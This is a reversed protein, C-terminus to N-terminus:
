ERQVLIIESRFVNGISLVASPGDPKVTTRGLLGTWAANNEDVADEITPEVELEELAERNVGQRVIVQKVTRNDVVIGRPLEITLQRGRYQDDFVAQHDRDDQLEARSRESRLKVMQVREQEAITSTARVSDPGRGLPSAVAEATAEYGSMRLARAMVGRKAADRAFVLQNRDVIFPEDPEPDVIKLESGTGGEIGISLACVLRQGTHTAPFVISRKQAIGGTLQPLLTGIQKRRADSGSQTGKCEIVHWLGNEDRAVFDPTKNPGRKATRTQTAGVSAAIKQMFYRGDVIEELKLKDMLWLIPVGMGFDDSLITKQHADLEAFSQTVSMNADNSIAATYRIWAWFESLSVGTSSTPTTLFGITLLMAPINLDYPTVGNVFTAPFAPLLTPGPWTAGDINISLNRNM